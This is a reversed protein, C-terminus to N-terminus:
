VMFRVDGMANDVREEGVLRLAVVKSSSESFTSGMIKKEGLFDLFASPLLLSVTVFGTL